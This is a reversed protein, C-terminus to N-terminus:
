CRGTSPRAVRSWSGTSRCRRARAPGARSRRRPRGRAARRDRPRGRDTSGHAAPARHPAPHRRADPGQRAVRALPRAPGARHHDHRQRLLDGPPARGGRRVVPVARHRRQLGVRREDRHRGPHGHEDHWAPRRAAGRCLVPPRGLVPHVDRPHARDPQPDDAPDGDPALVDHGDRGGRGRDVRGGRGAPDPARAAPRPGRPRGRAALDGRDRAPRRLRGRRDRGRGRRARRDAPDVTVTARETALNVNAEVIGDTKGLFREIRNVCSACTMGAIPLVIEIPRQDATASSTPNM